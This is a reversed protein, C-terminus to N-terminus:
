EHTYDYRYRPHGDYAMIQGNILNQIMWETSVVPVGLQKARRLVSSSCTSDTVIVNVQHDRTKIKTEVIGESIQIINTWEERFRDTTSEVMIRMNVLLNCTPKWEILRRKELSIGSQLLYAKYDMLKDESCCDYVWVHSLCLRGAALFQFYKVTRQYTDSLLICQRASSVEPESYKDLVIGGGDEILIKLENKDFPIAPEDHPSSDDTSVDLSSDELIMKEEEKQAAMKDVHTLLFVMGRFLTTKRRPRVDRNTHFLGIRAKRPSRRPTVPSSVAAGVPSADLGVVATKLRSTSVKAPTPTSTAVPNSTVMGGRKRKVSSAHSASATPAAMKSKSTSSPVSEKAITHQEYRSSTRRKSDMLNDLSVDAPKPTTPPPGSPSTHINAGIDIVLCQAQDESLIVQSCRFQANKGNDQEVVYLCPQGSTKTPSKHDTIIGPEFFGSKSQVFVSQGVPLREILLLDSVKVFRVDGDDFRVQYKSKLIQAISGPYYFGDKWRALVRAGVATESKISSGRTPPTCPLDKDPRALTPDQYSIQPSIESSRSGSTDSRKRRKLSKPNTSTTSATETEKTFKVGDKGEVGDSSQVTTRVTTQGCPIGDSSESIDEVDKVKDSVKEEADKREKEEAALKECDETSSTFLSESNRKEETLHSSEMVDSGTKNITSLDGVHPSTEYYSPQTSSRRAVNTGEDQKSQNSKEATSTRRVPATVPEPPTFYTDMDATKDTTAQSMGMGELSALNQRSGRSGSSSRSLSSSVDALDGSTMTSSSRSPSPSLDSVSLLESTETTVEKLLKPPDEEQTCCLSALSLIYLMRGIVAVMFKKFTSRLVRGDPGRVTQTIEKCESLWMRYVTKTVMTEQQQPQATHGSTTMSLPGVVLDQCIPASRAPVSQTTMPPAMSTSQGITSPIVSAAQITTPTIVTTSPDIAPSRVYLQGTVTQGEGASVSASTKSSKPTQRPTRLKPPTSKNKVSNDFSVHQSPGGRKVGSKKHIARSWKKWTSTPTTEVRSTGPVPQQEHTETKKLERSEPALHVTDAKKPSIAQSQSGHFTYPDHSSSERRRESIGTMERDHETRNKLIGKSSKKAKSKGRKHGHKITEKVLELHSIDESAVLVEGTKQAISESETFQRCTNGSMQQFTNGSMQQFPQRDGSNQNDVSGTKIQPHSKINVKSLNSPEGRSVSSDPLGEQCQGKGRLPDSMEGQGIVGSLGFKGRQFTVGSPGPMTDQQWDRVMHQDIDMTQLAQGADYSETEQMMVDEPDELVEMHETPSNTTTDMVELGEISAQYGTSTVESSLTRTKKLKPMQQRDARPSLVEERNRKKGPLCEDDSEDNIIQRKSPSRTLKSNGKKQRFVEFRSDETQESPVERLDPRQLTFSPDSMSPQTDIMDITLSPARVPSPRAECATDQISPGPPSTPDHSSEIPSSLQKQRTLDPSIEVPHLLTGTKPLSLHFGASDSNSTNAKDKETNDGLDVKEQLEPYQSPTCMSKQGPHTESSNGGKLSAQSKSYQSPTLHLVLDQSGVGELEEEVSSRQTVQDDEQNNGEDFSIIIVSDEKKEEVQVVEVSEERQQNSHSETASYHLHLSEGCTEVDDTVLTKVKDPVNESGEKFSVAVPSVRKVTVNQEDSKGSSNSGSGELSQSLRAPPNDAFTSEAAPNFVILEDSDELDSDTTKDGTPSSPIIMPVNGYATPSPPIANEDEDVTEPVLMSQNSLQLSGIFESPTSSERNDDQDEQFIDQSLTEQFLKFRHGRVSPEQGTHSIEAQQYSGLGQRSNSHFSSSSGNSSQIPKTGSAGAQNEDDDDDETTSKADGKPPREVVTENVQDESESIVEEADSPLRYGKSSSRQRHLNTGEFESDPVLVEANELKREDESLDGILGLRRTKSPQINNNSQLDMMPLQLAPWNEQIEDAQEQSDLVIFKSTGTQSQQTQNISWEDDM